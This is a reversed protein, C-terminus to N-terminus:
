RALTKAVAEELNESFGESLYIVEGNRNLLVYLPIANVRFAKKLADDGWVLPFGIGKKQALLRVASENRRDSTVGVVALGQAAYRQHLKQLKPMAEVCPGCWVEWFDLLVVKGRWRASSVPTGDLTTVVLPPAQKGLLGLLPNRAKLPPVHHEYDALFALNQGVDRETDNVRIDSLQYHLDQVQMLTRQHSRVAVPLMLRKDIAVQKYRERVDYAEIDPYHFTLQFTTGADMLTVRVAGATDLRVVDPVVTHGGPYFVLNRIGDPTNLVQYSKARDDVQYGVHGDYVARASADTRTSAFAFGHLTDLSNVWLTAKGNMRRVTGTVLTDTRQVSYSITRLKSQAKLVNRIVEHPTQGAAGLSCGVLLVARILRKFLM